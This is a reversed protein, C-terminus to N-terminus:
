SINSRFQAEVSMYLHNSVDGVNGGISQHGAAHLSMNDVGLAVGETRHDFTWFDEASLVWDLKTKNGTFSLLYASFDRHLCHPTYETHNGPGLNVTLNVFPGDTICGPLRNLKVRVISLFLM